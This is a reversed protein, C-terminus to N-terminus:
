LREDISQIMYVFLVRDTYRKFMKLSFSHVTIISPYKMSAYLVCVLDPGLSRKNICPLTSM